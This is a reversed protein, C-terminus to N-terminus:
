RSRTMRRRGDAGEYLLRFSVRKSNIDLVPFHAIKALKETSPINENVEVNSPFELPSYDVKAIAM